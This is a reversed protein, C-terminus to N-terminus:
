KSHLKTMEVVMLGHERKQLVLTYERMLQILTKLEAKTLTKEESHQLLALLKNLKRKDMSVARQVQPVRRIAVEDGILESHEENRLAELLVSWISM